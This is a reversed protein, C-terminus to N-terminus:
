WAGRPGAPSYPERGEETWQNTSCRRLGSNWEGEAPSPRSRRATRGVWAGLGLACARRLSPLSLPDRALLLCPDPSPLASFLSTLLEPQALLQSEGGRHSRLVGQRVLLLLLAIPSPSGGLPPLRRGGRGSGRLRCFLCRRPRVRSRGGGPLRRSLRHAGPPSGRAGWPRATSAGARVVPVIPPSTTAVGAAAGVDTSGGLFVFRPNEVRLYAVAGGYNHRKPPRSGLKRTKANAPHRGGHGRAGALTNLDSAAMGVLLREDLADRAAPLV